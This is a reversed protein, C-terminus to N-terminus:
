TDSCREGQKLIVDFRPQAVQQLDYMLLSVVRRLSAIQKPVTMDASLLRCNGAKQLTSRDTNGHLWLVSALVAILDRAEEVRRSGDEEHLMDMLDCFTRSAERALM